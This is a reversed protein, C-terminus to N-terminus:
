PWKLRAAGPPVNDSEPRVTTLNVRRWQIPTLPGFEIQLRALTLCDTQETGWELLQRSGVGM